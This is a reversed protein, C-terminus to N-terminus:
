RSRMSTCTFAHISYLVCIWNVTVVLFMPLFIIAALWRWMDDNHNFGYFMFSFALGVLFGCVMLNAKQVNLSAKVSLGIKVDELSTTKEPPTNAENDSKDSM